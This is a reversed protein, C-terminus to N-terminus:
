APAPAPQRTGTRLRDAFLHALEPLAEAGAATIVGTDTEVVPLSVVRARHKAMEAVVDDESSCAADRDVLLTAQAALVCGVGVTAVPKHELAAGSVLQMVDRDGWLDRAGEGGLVIVGAYDDIRADGAALDAHLRDRKREPVSKGGGPTAVVVEIGREELLRRTERLEQGAFGRKAVIVLVRDAM